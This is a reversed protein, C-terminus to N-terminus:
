GTSSDKSAKDRQQKMEATPFLIFQIKQVNDAVYVGSPTAVVTADSFRVDKQKLNQQV